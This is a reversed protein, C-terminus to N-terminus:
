DKEKNIISLAIYLLIGGAIGLIGIYIILGIMVIALFYRYENGKLKLSKIKLSFMPIESVMLSSFVLIAALVTYMLVPTIMPATYTLGYCFSVWFLANAPTNLGIFSETQREDINFKALRLASFITLIFAMYPLYEVIYENQSIRSVNETLFTYVAVSPAFGFSVMDSLSDLEKGMPSYAKLMRAAFGDSFDFLAAIIVWVVVWLYEGQFAMVTAISGSFLSCSTLLNPIYKKM